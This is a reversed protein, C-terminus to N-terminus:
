LTVSGAAHIQIMFLSPPKTRSCSVLKVGATYTGSGTAGAYAGTGGTIKFTGAEHEAFYCTTKDQTQHHTKRTHVVTISGKPFVFKDKTRSIVKDTGKAHIAGFGLVTSPTGTKPNTGLGIFRQHQAARAHHGALGLAAHPLMFTGLLAAVVAALSLRTRM